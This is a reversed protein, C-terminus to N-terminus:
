NLDIGNKMLLTQAPSALTGSPETHAGLNINPQALTM